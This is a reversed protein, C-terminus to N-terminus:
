LEGLTGPQDLKGPMRRPPISGKINERRAARAEVFGM